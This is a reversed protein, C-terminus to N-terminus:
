VMSLSSCPRRLRYILPYVLNPAPLFLAPYVFKYQVHYDDLYLKAKIVLFILVDKIPYETEKRDEYKFM